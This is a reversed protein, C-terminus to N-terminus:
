RGVWVKKLPCIWALYSTSNREQKLSAFPTKIKSYAKSYAIHSTKFLSGRKCDQFPFSSFYITEERGVWSTLSSPLNQPLLFQQKHKFIILSEERINIKSKCCCIKSSIKPKLRICLTEQNPFGYDLLSTLTISM